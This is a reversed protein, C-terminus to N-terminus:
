QLCYCSEGVSAAPPPCSAYGSAALASPSTRRFMAALSAADPVQSTHDRLAGTLHPSLDIRVGSSGAFLWSASVSGRSEPARRDGSALCLMRMAEVRQVSSPYLNYVLRAPFTYPAARLPFTPEGLHAQGYDFYGEGNLPVDGAAIKPPFLNGALGDPRDVDIELRLGIPGDFGPWEIATARFATIRTRAALQRGKWVNLLLKAPLFVYACLPAAIVLIGAVRFAGGSSRLWIATVILLGAASMGLRPLDSADFGEKLGPLLFLLAGASLAAMLLLGAIRGVWAM